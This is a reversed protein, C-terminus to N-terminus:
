KSPSPTIETKNKNHRILARQMNSCLTQVPSLIKITRYKLPKDQIIECMREKRENIYTIKLILNIFLNVTLM